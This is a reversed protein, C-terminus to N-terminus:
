LLLFMISFLFNLLIQLYFFHKDFYVIIYYHSKFPAGFNKWFNAFVNDKEEGEEEYDDKRFCFIIITVSIM